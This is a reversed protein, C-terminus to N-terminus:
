AAPEVHGWRTGDRLHAVVRPAIGTEAAIRELEGPALRTVRPADRLLAKARAIQAETYTASPHAEGKPPWRRTAPADTHTAATTM